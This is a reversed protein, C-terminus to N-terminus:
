PSTRQLFKPDEAGNFCVQLQLPSLLQLNAHTAKLKAWTDARFPVAGHGPVATIGAAVGGSCSPAFPATPAAVERQLAGLSKRGTPEPWGSRARSAPHIQLIEHDEPSLM